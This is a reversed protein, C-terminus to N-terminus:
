PPLPIKRPLDNTGFPPFYVLRGYFMGFHGYFEGFIKEGRRNFIYLTIKITHFCVM